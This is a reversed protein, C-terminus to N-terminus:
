CASSQCFWEQNLSDLGEETKRESEGIVGKLLVRIGGLLTKAVDTYEVAGLQCLLPM